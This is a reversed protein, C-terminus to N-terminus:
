IFFSLSQSKGGEEEWLRVLQETLSRVLPESTVLLVAM